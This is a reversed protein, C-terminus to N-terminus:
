TKDTTQEAQKKIIKDQYVQIKFYWCLFGFGTLFCGITIGLIRYKLIRELELVLRDLEKIM